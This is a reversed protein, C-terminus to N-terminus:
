SGLPLAKKTGSETIRIAVIKLKQTKQAIQISNPIPALLQGFVVNLKFHMRGNESRGPQGVLFLGITVIKDETNKTLNPNFKTHHCIHSLVVYFSNAIGVAMKKGLLQNELYEM